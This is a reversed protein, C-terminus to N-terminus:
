INLTKAYNSYFEYTDKSIGKIEVGNSLLYEAVNIIKTCVAKDIDEFAFKRIEDLGPIIKRNPEIYDAIFLIKGLLSMDPKGTTHYTIADLIDNDDVNYKKKAYYAGLKGHLLHPQKQEETTIDIGHKRCKALMEDDSMYKACDHLLGALQAKEINYNYKMALNACTYRVGQTHIFRKEPLKKKLKTEIELLNIDM